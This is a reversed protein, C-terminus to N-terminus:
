KSNRYIIEDLILQVNNAMEATARTLQGAIILMFSSTIIGITNGIGVVIFSGTFFIFIAIIIGIWGIFSIFKSIAITTGYSKKMSDINVVEIIKESGIDPFAKKFEEEAEKQNVGQTFAVKLDTGDLYKVIYTNM